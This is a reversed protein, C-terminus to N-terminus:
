NILPRIIRRFFGDGCNCSQECGAQGGPTAAMDSGQQALRRSIRVMICCAAALLHRAATATPCLSRAAQLNRPQDRCGSDSGTWSRQPRRDCCRAAPRASTAWRVVLGGGSAPMASRQRESAAGNKERLPQFPNEHSIIICACSRSLCKVLHTPQPASMPTSCGSFCTAHAHGGGGSAGM